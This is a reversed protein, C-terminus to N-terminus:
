RGTCRDPSSIWAGAGRVGRLQDLQVAVASKGDVPKHGRERQVLDVVRDRGSLATVDHFATSIGFCVYATEVVLRM